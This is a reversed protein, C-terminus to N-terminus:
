KTFLLRTIFHSSFNSKSDYSLDAGMFAFLIIGRSYIADTVAPRDM